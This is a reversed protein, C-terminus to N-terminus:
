GVAVGSQYFPNEKLLELYAPTFSALMDKSLGLAQIAAELRQVAAPTTPIGLLQCTIGGALATIRDHITANAVNAADFAHNALAGSIAPPLNWKASVIGNISRYNTGYAADELDTNEKGEQVARQVLDAYESKRELGLITMGMRHLLGCVFMEEALPTQGAMRALDICLLASIIPYEICHKRLIDGRIKGTMTRTVLLVVMNKAAKLGLLTLADKLTKVTGSRGYYSSNAVRLLEGGISQDPSIIREMTAISSSAALPDFQMIRTAVLPLPPIRNEDIQLMM